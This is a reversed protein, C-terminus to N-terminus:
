TRAIICACPNHVSAGHRISQRRGAPIGIRPPNSRLSPPVPSLPGRPHERRCRRRTHGRGLHRRRVQAAQDHAIAPIEPGNAGLPRPSTSRARCVLAGDHRTGRDLCSQENGARVRVLGFVRQVLGGFRRARASHPNPPSHRLGAAAWSVAQGSGGSKGDPMEPAGYEDVLASKDM